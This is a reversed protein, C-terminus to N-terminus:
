GAADSARSRVGRAADRLQQAANQAAPQARQAAISLSHDVVDGARGFSGQTLALVLMVAGMLALAFAITMGIPHRRRRAREDRRGHEYAARLDARDLDDPTNADDGPRGGVM